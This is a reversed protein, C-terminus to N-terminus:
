VGLWRGSSPVYPVKPPVFPKVEPRHRLEPTVAGTRFADAGHSAWDHLPHDQFVKLRDDWSKRYQRLAEIGRACNKEDFVCMPLLSRAAEIGDEVGLKPAVDFKIGLAAAAERRSKGTGIERVEIDHPGIHRGYVYGKERLMKAYHPLGEGTMEYYDILRVERGVRQAFWIAMSDRLGLDWWTDVTKSPDYPVRCIREEKWCM